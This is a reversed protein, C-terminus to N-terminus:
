STMITLINLHNVKDFQFSVNYMIPFISSQMHTNMIITIEEGRKRNIIKEKKNTKIRTPVERYVSPGISRLHM